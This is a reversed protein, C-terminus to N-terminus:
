REDLYGSRELVLRVPMDYIDKWSDAGHRAVYAEVVRFGVFYGAAGPSGEILQANRAAILDLDDRERSPFLPRLAAYLEAEHAVAWDWEADSYRLAQAPTGQEGAYVAAVYSAFGESIARDLVTGADPDAARTPSAGQVQHTLEHPLIGAIAASDAQMRSFDAVMGIDTLGGMDTWGPGFVIYWTGAPRRGTTSDIWAVGDDFRRNLAADLLPEVRSHIPHGAALLESSWERFATEDGLYGNWFATYPAYVRRVLRAIATDAPDGASELLVESQLKYLNIVHLDGGALRLEAPVAALRQALLSDSSGPVPDASATQAGVPVATAAGLLVATAFSTSLFQMRALIDLPLASRWDDPLACGKRAPLCGLIV